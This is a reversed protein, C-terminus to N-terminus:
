IKIGYLEKLKPELRKIEAQKEKNKLKVFILYDILKNNIMEVSNMRSEMVFGLKQTVKISPINDKQVYITVKNAEIYNDLFEYVGKVAETVIGKSCFDERLWYAIEFVKAGTNEVVLMMTGLYEDSEKDFMSYTYQKEEDWKKILSIVKQEEEALTHRTEEANMLFKILHKENAKIIQLRDSSDEKKIKRLIVRDFILEKPFTEKM